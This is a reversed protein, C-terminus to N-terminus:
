SSGEANALKIVGVAEESRPRIDCKFPVPHCVNGHKFIPEPTIKEGAEDCTKCIDMTALVSAILLWITTDAFTRGPCIRRGFGFILESPNLQSATGDDLNEFREPIFTDPDPYVDPNRTMAWVNPIIMSGAPIHYGLYEDDQIVQHPVVLPLPCGWRYTEKLVCDLYPMSPRDDFDPLRSQGIVRDVEAQAKKYVEPHLVMALIFTVVVTVTTDVGAIYVVGAVGKLNFVDDQTLENDASIKEILSALFSTRASGADVASKVREYPVDHLQQVESRLGSVRRKIGAGPMWEPVYKLIPFFDTITTGASGAEQMRTIIDDAWEIFGDDAATAIHGYTVEMMTGGASKKILTRFDEPTDLLASLLQRIRRRQLPQYDRQATKTQFATQLWRRHLRWRNGYPLISATPELGMLETFVVTRPRDSYKSSRKEMLDHAIRASSIVIAPKRFVELYFIDGYKAAWQKFTKHQFESPLQHANGLLPLRRPGPPLPYASMSRRLSHSFISIVLLFFIPTLFAEFERLFPM